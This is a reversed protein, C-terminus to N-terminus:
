GGVVGEVAEARVRTRGSTGSATGGALGELDDESLETIKDATYEHGYEKAITVVDEPSKAAKFKEQLNSDGKVKSLFAKLQELSKPLLFIPFHLM